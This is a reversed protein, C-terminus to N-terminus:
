RGEGEGLGEAHASLESDLRSVEETVDNSAFYAKAMEQGKEWAWTCLDGKSSSLVGSEYVKCGCPLMRAKM